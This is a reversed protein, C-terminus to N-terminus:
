PTKVAIINQTSEYNDTTTKLGHGDDLNAVDDHKGKNEPFYDLIM